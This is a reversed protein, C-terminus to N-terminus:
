GGQRIIEMPSLKSASRAPLVTFLMSSLTSIFFARVYIFINFSIIMTNKNSAIRGAAVEITAMYQCLFFGLIMGIIGGLIGLITGQYFFLRSIDSPGFGISRLIAIDRRKQNVLISLINYIGFGAVIIISFTMANRVIDQTKFVSLISANAEDWSQIKDLTKLRWLTAKERALTPDHLKIAIDTIASPSKKLKQVDALTAFATTEDITHIGTEFVGVIKFTTQSTGTTVQIAESKRAGLKDLLKKGIIIRNGSNGIDTFKGQLIYKEINTVRKQMEPNSGIMRGPVSFTGRSYIVQALNQFSFASVDTDKELQSTWGGSNTIKDSERKGSPPIFWFLHQSDKFFYQNLSNSDLNEDRNSVRIHADNNILQETLYEQFGLMMGSIGIYAVTGLIIGLLIFLSQKKRNLLQKISLFIM